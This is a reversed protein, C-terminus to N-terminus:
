VYGEALCDGHNPCVGCSKGDCNPEIGQMLLVKGLHKCMVCPEDGYIVPIGPHPVEDQKLIGDLLVAMKQCDACSCTGSVFVGDRVVAATLYGGRDHWEASQSRVLWENARTTPKVDADPIAQARHWRMELASIVSM